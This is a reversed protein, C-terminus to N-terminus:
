PSMSARRSAPSTPARSLGGSIHGRDDEARGGERRGAAGRLRSHLRGTGLVIQGNEDAGGHLARRGGQRRLGIQRSRRELRASSRLPVSAASEGIRQLREEIKRRTIEAVPREVKLGKFDGVEFDPLVEYALTFTLDAHGELIQTAEGEDETMAVKPQM